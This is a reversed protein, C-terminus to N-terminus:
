ILCLSGFAKFVSALIRDLGETITDGFLSDAADGPTALIQTLPRYARKDRFQALLYSAFVHLMYQENHAFQGPDQAVEELAGLLHPAIEDKQAIAAEAAAKPFHGTYPTLATIIEPVTM